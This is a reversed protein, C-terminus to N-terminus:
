CTISQQQILAQLPEQVINHLFINKFFRCPKLSSIQYTVDDQARKLYHEIWVGVTLLLGLEDTKYLTIYSINKLGEQWFICPRPSQCTTHLMILHNTSKIM